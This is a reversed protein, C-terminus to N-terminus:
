PSSKTVMLSLPCFFLHFAAVSSAVIASKKVAVSDRAEEANGGDILQSTWVLIAMLECPFMEAEDIPAPLPSNGAGWEMTM